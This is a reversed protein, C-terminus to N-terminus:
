INYEYEFGANGATFDFLVHQDETFKYSATCALSEKILRKMHGSVPARLAVENAKLLQATLTYRGQRVSLAGGGVAAIKAGCYTALRYERGHWYVAGIIGTFCRGAMPIDAASLMLSCPGADFWNCQTWIYRKPFSSGRDGEIYGTGNTFNLPAGNIVVNGSVSHTMSFVSHRCEMFPVFEFPGMIGYKLRHLSGYILRGKATVEPTDIDLEIGTNSFVNKGARIVLGGRHAKLSEVPLEAQYAVNQTVIQLSGSHRGGSSTHIAPIFAAIDNGAQQKFYWGEFCNPLLLDEWVANIIFV